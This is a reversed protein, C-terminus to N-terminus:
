QSLFGLLGLNAAGVSFPVSAPQAVNGLLGSVEPSAFLGKALYERMVDSTMGKAAAYRPMALLWQLPNSAAEREFTQSGQRLQPVARAYEAIDMLPGQIKGTKGAEKTQREVTNALRGANVDGTAENVVGPKLLTKLNGYQTDLNQWEKALPGRAVRDMEKGVMRLAATITANQTERSATSLDSVWGQYEQPDLQKTTYLKDKLEALMSLAGEKGARSGRTLMTEAKDIADFVPTVAPMGSIQGRFKDYQQGMRDKAAGLIPKTLPDTEGISRGAAANVAGRQQAMFDQMVGASGPSRALMDEVRALTASGTQQSPLIPAGIKDAAAKAAEQAPSSIANRVPNILFSTLEGAAGGALGSAGQVTGKIARQKPTGYEAAGALASVAAPVGIRGIMTAQGIPTPALPLSEGVRTALPFKDQLPKYLRTNEDQERKQQSLADLESRNDMGLFEKGATAASLGLQRNGEAVRDLTRGAGIVTAQGAPFTSGLTPSPIPAGKQGKNIMNGVTQQIVRRDTGDPFELVGVGEVHVEITM